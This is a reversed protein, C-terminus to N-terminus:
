EAMLQELLMKIERLDEKLQTGSTAIAPTKVDSLGINVTKIDNDLMQLYGNLQKKIMTKALTRDVDCSLNEYIYLLTRTSSVYEFVENSVVNFSTVVEYELSDHHQSKAFDIFDNQYNVLRGMKAQLSDLSSQKKAQQSFSNTPCLFLITACLILQLGIKTM